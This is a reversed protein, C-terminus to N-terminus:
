GGDTNALSGCSTSRAPLPGSLAARDGGEVGHQGLAVVLLIRDGVRRAGDEVAVDHERAVEGVLAVVRRDVDLGRDAARHGLQQAGALELQHAAELLQERGVVARAIQDRDAGIHAARSGTSSRATASYGCSVANRCCSMCSRASTALQRARNRSSSPQHGRWEAQLRHQLESRAAEVHGGASSCFSRM